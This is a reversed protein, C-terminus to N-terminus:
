AFKANFFERLFGISRRIDDNVIVVVADDKGTVSAAYELAEDERVIRTVKPNVARAGRAFIESIKGVEERLMPNVQEKPKRFYGDIKDYIVLEDFVKGVVEGTRLMIDEPRGPALRVVGITKGRGKVLKRALEGISRLSEEEHAYDAIVRAGNEARLLTVRGGYRELKLKRLIENLDEPLKEDLMAFVGVIAFSLNLMLPLYEGNFAWDLKEFDCVVGGRLYLKRNRLYFDARKDLTSFSILKVGEPIKDLKSCVLNDDLNYVAYGGPRISSFVFEKATAIDEQTRIRATAGIHDHFVNLFIGVDHYSYGLGKITSSGLSSEFVAYGDIGALEGSMFEFLYRGPCVTSTINWFSKSDEVISRREGDVYHGETDVRLTREGMARLIADILFVTTTKGKTGTVAIIKKVGMGWNYLM